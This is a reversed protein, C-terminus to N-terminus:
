FQVPQILAPEGFDALQANSRTFYLRWFAALDHLLKPARYVSANPPPLAGGIVYIKAGGFNGFLSAAAASNIEHAPNIDRAAGHSYFSTIGSNELGDSALLLIKHMAPDAVIPASVVQLASMIDSHQLSSVSGQFASQVTADAMNVAYRRQDALCADFIKTTSIATNDVQEPPMPAEIVGTHLVDLYRGQAFASFAAIVFKTGPQLAGNLNALVSAALDNNWSVTQDIMVYILRTYGNPVAPQLRNAAYCSPVDNQM